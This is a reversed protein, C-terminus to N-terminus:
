EAVAPKFQDLERLFIHPVLGRYQISAFQDIFFELIAKM